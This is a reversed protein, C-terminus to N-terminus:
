LERKKYFVISMYWSLAYLVIIVLCLLPLIGNSSIETQIGDSLLRSSVVSGACVVGVIIYYAMRGKEVGLKFMFPLSIASSILSIILLLMLMVMFTEIQGEGQIIMRIAQAGGTIVMMVMQAGLGILYKASVIQAKTYPMTESYSLWRSREDYGLLNVPIIGCMICPYFVLFLNDNGVFSVAVFVIAILLYARCYKAMMYVDKLLLGKM